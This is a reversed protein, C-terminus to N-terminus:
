VTVLACRYHHWFSRQLNNTVKVPATVIRRVTYRTHIFLIERVARGPIEVSIHHSVLTCFIVYNNHRFPILMTYHAVTKMYIFINIHKNTRNANLQFENIATQDHPLNRNQDFWVSKSFLWANFVICARIEYSYIKIIRRPRICHFISDFVIYVFITIFGFFSLDESENSMQMKYTCIFLLYCFSYLNWLYTSAGTKM